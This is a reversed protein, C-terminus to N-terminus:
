IASDILILWACLGHVGHVFESAESLLSALLGFEWEVRLHMGCFWQFSDVSQALFEWLGGSCKHM